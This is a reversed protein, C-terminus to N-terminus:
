VNHTKEVNNEGGPMEYYCNRSWKVTDIIEKMVEQAREESDYTGLDYTVRNSTGVIHNTDTSYVSDCKAVITKNQSMIKIM